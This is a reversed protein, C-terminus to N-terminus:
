SATATLKSLTLSHILAEVSMDEQERTGLNKVRVKGEAWEEQGVLVLQQANIREAHKFAWKMRRGGELVLDVRRGKKRLQQAIGSAQPRLDEDLALVLDDVEHGLDPLLGRDQLLEMIVADGFGFGCMPQNEGGLAGLLGDYRGGGCIARLVGQKDFGEFVIGTYYSLGRVVSADFALWDAMGYAEALQFLRRLDSVAENDSGLLQALDDLSRTGMAAMIKEAATDAVGVGALEELVKERPLKEIKDVVVCVAAFSDEPVGAQTLVAQLSKRSNVKIGVDAPTIGVRQFFLTIAALLEAEAAVGELGIIDCNWQYHERRRGRTMREYRWCQGITWWKAPLPLSKAKKLVLRALSPTLEPRLALRRQGKDEFNYLQSTIEEGAKRVFLEENEVVPFDVQEFGCQRSVVEWHGFLWSRLRMDQPDFDRTGRPPSTDILERSSSTQHSTSASKRGQKEAEGAKATSRCM